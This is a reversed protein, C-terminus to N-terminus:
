VCDNHVLILDFGGSKYKIVYSMRKAMLFEMKIIPTAIRLPIDWSKMILIM